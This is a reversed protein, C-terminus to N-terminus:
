VTSQASIIRILIKLYTEISTVTQMSNNKHVVVLDLKPFVTIYQGFAGMATYWGSYIGTNDPNDWCWWMYGYGFLAYSRKNALAEAYRTVPTTITKIWTYPIIQRGNWNGERLMLYGLRAMDETSFWMHYAPYKSILHDGSKRQATRSWHQMQLPRALISDVLDYISKNTHKELIFGAVNFDWNNYLWQSGPIVSGRKPAIARQDGPNSAPHYVGSRSSILDRITAKKEIPLLGSLDDLGLDELTTALDVRGNGVYPGYLMALVSKRCSAIYSLEKVDGYDFVVKGQHIIMMGTTHCSDTIFARLESLKEIDWGRKGPDKLREWKEGPFYHQVVRDKSQHDCGLLIFVSAYLASRLVSKLLISRM